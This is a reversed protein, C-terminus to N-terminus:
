AIPHRGASGAYCTAPSLFARVTVVPHERGIASLTSAETYPTTVRVAIRLHLRQDSGTARASRGAQRRCTEYSYTPFEVNGFIASNEIAFKSRTLGSVNSRREGYPSFKDVSSLYTWEYFFAQEEISSCALLLSGNKHVRLIVAALSARGCATSKSFSRM